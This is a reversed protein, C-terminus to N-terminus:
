EDDHPRYPTRSDVHDNHGHARQRREAAHGPEAYRHIGHADHYRDHENGDTHCVSNMEMVRNLGKDAFIRSNVALRENGPGHLVHGSRNDHRRYRRGDSEKREHRALNQRDPIEPQEGRRAHQHFHRSRQQQKGRGYPKQSHGSGRFQFAGNGGFRFGAPNPAGGPIGRKKKPPCRHDNDGSKEQQNKERRARSPDPDVRAEERVKLLVAVNDAGVGEHVFVEAASGCQVHNKGCLIRVCELLRVYQTQHGGQLFFNFRVGDHSLTEGQGVIHLAHVPDHM